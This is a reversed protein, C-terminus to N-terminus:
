DNLHQRGTLEGVFQIAITEIFNRRFNPILLNEM